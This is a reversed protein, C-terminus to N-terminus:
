TSGKRKGLAALADRAVRRVARNERKLFFVRRSATVIEKLMVRTEVGPLERLGQIAFIRRAEQDAQGASLKVYNRTLSGSMSVLEASAQGGSGALACLQELYERPLRSATDIVRLAVTAPGALGLQRLFKVLQPRVDHKSHRLAFAAFATTRPSLAAFLKEVRAEDLDEPHRELWAGAATMQQDTLLRGLRGLRAVADQGTLGDLFLGLTRPFHVAVQEPEFLQTARLAQRVVPHTALRVIRWTPRQDADESTLAVEFYQQLVRSAGPDGDQLALLLQPLLAQDRLADASQTLTHLMVGVVEAAGGSTIPEDTQPMDVALKDLDRLLDELSDSIKEDGHGRGAHAAPMEKAVTATFLKQGVSLFTAAIQNREVPAATGLRVLEVRVSEIIKEALAEAYAHDHNAEAPLCRVLESVVDLTATGDARDAEPLLARLEDLRQQVRASAALTAELARVRAGRTGGMASDDQDDADATGEGHAGTMILERARVGPIPEAWAALGREKGTHARQLRRAAAILSATDTAPTFELGGILSKVFLDRLWSQAHSRMPLRIGCVVLDHSGVVVELMPRRGFLARMSELVLEGTVQVRQNNDPYIFCAKFFTALREVLMAAAIAHPDTAAGAVRGPATPKTSTSPGGKRPLDNPNQGSHREM